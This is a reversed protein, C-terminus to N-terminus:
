LSLQDAPTSEVADLDRSGVLVWEKSLLMKELMRLMKLVGLVM